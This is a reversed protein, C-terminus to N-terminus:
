GSIVLNGDVSAQLCSVYRKCDKFCHIMSGASVDWLQVVGPGKKEKHDTGTVFWEPHFGGVFELELIQGPWSPEPYNQNPRDFSIDGM